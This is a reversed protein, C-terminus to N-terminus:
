KTVEPIAVTRCKDHMLECEDILINLRTIRDLDGSIALMAIILLGGTGLGGIFTVWEPTNM